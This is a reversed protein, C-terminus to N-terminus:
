LKFRRFINTYGDKGELEADVFAILFPHYGSISQRLEEMFGMFEEAEIEDFAIIDLAQSQTTPLRSFVFESQISNAFSLARTISESFETIVEIVEIPM